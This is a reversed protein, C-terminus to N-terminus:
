PPGLRLMRSQAPTPIMTVFSDVVSAELIEDETLFIRSAPIEHLFTLSQGVLTPVGTGIIVLHTCEKLLFIWIDQHQGYIVGLEDFLLYALKNEARLKDDFQVFQKLTLNSLGKFLFVSDGRGKLKEAILRLLISKGSGRPGRFYCHQREDLWIIKSSFVNIYSYGSTALMLIEDVLAARQLVIM